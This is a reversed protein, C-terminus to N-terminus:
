LRKKFFTKVQLEILSLERDFAGDFYKGLFKVFNKYFM